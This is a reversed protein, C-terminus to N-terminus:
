TITNAAAHAACYADWWDVVPSTLRRSAYLVKERNTCQAINLMKDVYKLWVDAQLPDLSNSFTSPKYSM